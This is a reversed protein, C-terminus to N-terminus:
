YISTEYLEISDVANLLTDREFDSRVVFASADMSWIIYQMGGSDVYYTVEKDGLKLVEMELAANVHYRFMLKPYSSFELFRGSTEDMFFRTYQEENRIEVGPTYQEQLRELGYILAMREPVDEDMEGLPTYESFKDAFFHIRHTKSGYVTMSCALMALLIAIFVLWQRRLSLRRREKPKLLKAMHKEFDKSFVHEAGCFPTPCTDAFQKLSDAILKDLEYESM